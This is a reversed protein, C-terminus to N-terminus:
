ARITRIGFAALGALLFAFSSPLPVPSPATSSGGTNYTYTLTLGSQGTDGNWIPFLGTGAVEGTISFAAPGAAEFFSDAIGVSNPDLGSFEFQAIGSTTLAFDALTDPGIRFAFTSNGIEHGVESDLDFSVGSLTGLTTDFSDFLLNFSGNEFQNFTQTQSMTAASVTGAGLILALLAALGRLRPKFKFDHTQM